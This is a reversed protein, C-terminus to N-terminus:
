PTTNLVGKYVRKIFMVKVAQKKFNNINKFWMEHM